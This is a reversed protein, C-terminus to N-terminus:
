GYDWIGGHEGWGGGWAIAEERSVTTEKVGNAFINPAAKALFAAVIHKCSPTRALKITVSGGFKYEYEATAKSPGTRGVDIDDDVVGSDRGHELNLSQFVSVSFAPCTCNWTELRVEYLPVTSSHGGHHYYRPRSSQKDATTSSQVYFVEWGRHDPQVQPNVESCELLSRDEASSRRQRPIDEPDDGVPVPSNVVLKTVLGRDLIDLAPLLEHPFLMHLTLFIPRVKQEDLLSLRQVWNHGAQDPSDQLPPHQRKDQPAINPDSFQSLARFISDLVSPQPRNWSM